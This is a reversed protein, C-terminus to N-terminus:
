LSLYFVSRNLPQLVLIKGLNFLKNAVLKQITIEACVASVSSSFQQDGLSDAIEKTTFLAAMPHGNGLPKGITIIDPVM